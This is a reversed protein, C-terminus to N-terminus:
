FPDSMYRSVISFVHTIDSRYNKLFMLCGVISKYTTMDVKDVGDDNCLLKDHSIITLVLKNNEMNFKKLM